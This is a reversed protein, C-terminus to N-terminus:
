WTAQGQWTTTNRRFFTAASSTKESVQLSLTEQEYRFVADSVRTRSRYAYPFSQVPAMKTLRHAFCKFSSFRSMALWGRLALRRVAKVRLFLLFITSSMSLISMHWLFLLPFKFLACQPGPSPSFKPIGSLKHGRPKEYASLAACVEASYIDGWLQHFLMSDFAVVKKVVDERTVFASKMMEIRFCFSLTHFPMV